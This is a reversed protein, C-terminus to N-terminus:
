FLFADGFIVFFHIGIMDLLLSIRRKLQKCNTDDDIHKTNFPIDDSTNTSKFDIVSAALEIKVAM